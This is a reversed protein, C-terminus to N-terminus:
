GSVIAHSAGLASAGTHQGCIGSRDRPMMAVRTGGSIMSCHGSDVRWAVTVDPVIYPAGNPEFYHRTGACAWLYASDPWPASMATATLARM